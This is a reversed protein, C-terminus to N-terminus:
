RRTIQARVIEVLGKHEPSLLTEIRSLYALALLRGADEEKGDFTNKLSRIAFATLPDETDKHKGEFKELAEELAVKLPFSRYRRVEAVLATVGEHRKDEGESVRLRAGLEKFFGEAYSNCLRDRYGYRRQDEPHYLKKYGDFKGAVTGFSIGKKLVEDVDGIRFSPACKVSAETIAKPLSLSRIYFKDDLISLCGAIRVLDTGAKVFSKEFFSGLYPTEKVQVIEMFGRVFKELSIWARADPTLLPGAPVTTSGKEFANWNFSDHLPDIPKVVPEFQKHRVEPTEMM